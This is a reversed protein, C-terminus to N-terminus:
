DLIKVFMSLFITSPGVPSVHKPGEKEKDLENLQDKQM